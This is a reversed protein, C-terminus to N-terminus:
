RSTDLDLDCWDTTWTTIGNTNDYAFSSVPTYALYAQGNASITQIVQGCDPYIVGGGDYDTSSPIDGCCRLGWTCGRRRTDFIGNGLLDETPGYWAVALAHLKALAARDDRLAGSPNGGSAADRRANSGQSTRTTTDLDWIASQPAMWLHLDRHRIVLKRPSNPDGTAMRIRHPLRLGVTFVLKDWKYVASLSNSSLTSDGFYRYGSAADSGATVKIGDAKIQVSVGGPNGLLPDDMKLFRNKAIRVFVMPERRNPQGAFTIATQGDARAPPTSDYAYGEFLPLDNMVEIVALSTDGQGSGAVVSGNDLCRYDAREQSAGDGNGVSGFFSRPLRFLQFVPEWREDCRKNVALAAMAAAETDKWGKEITSDVSGVTALVQIQESESVLYGVRYQQADNFQLASDVCRHDGILDVFKSTTRASAGMITTPTGTTPDTYTITDFIQAFAKLRCTLPGTPSGTDDDWTPYLAGRGRTRSGLRAVFDFVSSSDDVPWAATDNFLDTAGTLKWLPQGTPRTMALANEMAEQDTWLNGAGEFTFCKAPVGGTTTSTTGSSEKNGAKVSTGKLASNFGPHSICNPYGYGSTYYHHRDMQWRKTRHFADVCTYIREGCPMEAAPWGTDSQYECTGWWVTKWAPTGPAAVPLAAQVRIEKDTLDPITLSDVAADWPTGQKARAASDASHGAMKDGAFLGYRFLLECTGLQPLLARTYNRLIMGSSHIGPRQMAQIQWGSASSEQGGWNPRTLLRFVPWLQNVLPLTITM